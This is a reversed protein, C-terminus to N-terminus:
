FKGHKMISYILRLSLLGSVIFGVLGVVPMGHYKPPVDAVVILASSVLLAVLLLTFAIRNSV